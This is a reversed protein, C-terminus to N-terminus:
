FNYTNARWGREKRVKGARAMRAAAAADKRLKYVGPGSKWYMDGTPIMHSSAGLGLGINNNYDVPASNYAWKFLKDGTCSTRGWAVSEQYVSLATNLLTFDISERQIDGALRKLWDLSQFRFHPGDVEEKFRNSYVSIRDIELLSVQLFSRVLSEYSESELGIMLDANINLKRGSDYRRVNQVLRDIVENSVENRRSSRIIKRDTSQVGFSIRNIFGDRLTADVKAPTFYGPHVEFCRFNDNSLDINFNSQIIKFLRDIQAPDLLSPTGGGIYIAAVKRSAFVPAYLRAELEIEDLYDDLATKGPYPLRYYLCFSCHEICFPINVYLTLFDDDEFRALSNEWLDICDRASIQPPTNPFIPIM